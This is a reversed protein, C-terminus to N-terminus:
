SQYKRIFEKIINEVNEKGIYHCLTHPAGEVVSFYKDSSCALFNEKTHSMPVETDNNGHLFLVPVTTKSLADITSEKIDANLLHKACLVIYNMAAKKMFVKGSSFWLEDYFSTFGAEMILGKVKQNKIKDSALGITTAGMSIGYIFINSCDTNSDIWSIWNLLDYKEKCGATTFHGESMGHARQDTMLVNFGLSLFYQMLSSFNNFANSQYGHILVITTDSKKDYYRGVLKLNDDSNISVLTCEIKKSVVVSKKLEDKYPYYATGKLNDKDLCLPKRRYFIGFFMATYITSPLVFIIGSACIVLVIDLVDKLDM